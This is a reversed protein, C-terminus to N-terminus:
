NHFIYVESAVVMPYDVSYLIDSGLNHGKNIGAVVFDAKFDSFNLKAFKLCDVPTGSIAFAKCNPIDFVEKVTFNKFFTLSHSAGSRNGDPAVILVNHGHEVLVKAMQTIGNCSIGDDNCLIVNM